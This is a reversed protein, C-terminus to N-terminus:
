QIPEDGAITTRHMDRASSADYRCARHLVGRNDWIVLDGVKWEHRYVLEPATSRDLLELLLARGEDFPMGEVHSATAGLVLSRRGSRHQWVLPHVKAPRKRWTAVEEPSPDPNVLRQAAELSHVVRVQLLEQQEAASLADYAAYTSAFETEGGSAAVAHASLVTAMIPIDDTAGDLHWDFTGRLYEAVPNKAPDLTVRFIEPRDGRGVLEVRGLKRSFAVQTEDDLHLDRFVLAGNEDLVRLCWEPFADDDVLRDRDVGLVQAGVTAGLKETTLVTM